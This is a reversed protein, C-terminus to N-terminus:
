YAIHKIRVFSANIIRIFVRSKYVVRGFTFYNENMFCGDEHKKPNVFPTPQKQCNLWGTNGESLIYMQGDHEIDINIHSYCDVPEVVFCVADNSPDGTYEGNRLKMDHEALEASSDWASGYDKNPTIQDAAPTTVRNSEDSTDYETDLYEDVEFMLEGLVNFAQYRLYKTNIDFEIDQDYEFTGSTPTHTNVFLDYSNLVQKDKDLLLLKANVKCRFYQLFNNQATIHVPLNYKRDFDPEFYSVGSIKKTKYGQLIEDSFAIQVEPKVVKSSIYEDVGVTIPASIKVNESDYVKIQIDIFPKTSKFWTEIFKLNVTLEYTNKWYLKNLESGYINETKLLKWNDTKGEIIDRVEVVNNTSGDVVLGIKTDLAYNNEIAFADVTIVCDEVPARTNIQRFLVIPYETNDQYYIRNLLEGNQKISLSKLPHQAATFDELLDDAYGKTVIDLKKIPIYGPQMSVSGDSLLLQEVGPGEYIVVSLRLLPKLPEVECVIASYEKRLQPRCTLTNVVGDEDFYTIKTNKNLPAIAARLKPNTFQTKYVPDQVLDLTYRKAVVRGTDDAFTGLVDPEIGYVLEEYTKLQEGTGSLQNLKNLM